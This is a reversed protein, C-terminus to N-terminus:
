DLIDYWWKLRPFIPQWVKIALTYEGNGAWYPETVQANVHAYVIGIDNPTWSFALHNPENFDWAMGDPASLVEFTTMVGPQQEACGGTLEKGVVADFVYLKGIVQNPDVWDPAPESVVVYITGFAISTIILLALFLRMRTRM